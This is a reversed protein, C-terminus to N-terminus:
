RHQLNSFLVQHNMLLLLLVVLHLQQTTLDRVLLVIYLIAPRLLLMRIM